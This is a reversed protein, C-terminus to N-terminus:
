KSFKFVEPKAIDRYDHVLMIISDTVSGANFAIKENELISEDVYLEFPLIPQGFPPVSGPTLGTRENLEEPTAFRIKKAAFRTKLAASDLQCAASLVFLRFTDNVKLLLAKGGIRIDEGRERASDESTLTPPHQVERYVVGAENLLARITDLIIM